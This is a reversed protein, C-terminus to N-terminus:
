DRTARLTIIFDNYANLNTAINQWSNGRERNGSNTQFVGSATMGLLHLIDREENQQM